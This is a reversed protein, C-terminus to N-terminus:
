DGDRLVQHATSVHGKGHSDFPVVLRERSMHSSFYLTRFMRKLHEKNLLQRWEELGCLDLSM